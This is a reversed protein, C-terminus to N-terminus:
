TAPPGAGGVAVGAALRVAVLAAGLTAVALLPAAKQRGTAESACAAAALAAVVGAAVAVEYAAVGGVPAYSSASAAAIVGVALWAPRPLM